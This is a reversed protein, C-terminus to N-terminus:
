GHRFTCKDGRNCNGRAWFTCPKTGILSRNIGKLHDEDGGGGRDGGKGGRRGGRDRDRNRQQEAAPEYDDDYNLQVDGGRGGGGYQKTDYQQTHPPAQPPPQQQQQQQAGSAAAWMALQLAQTPDVAPPAQQQAAAPNGFAAMLAQLPNAAQAQAHPPQAGTASSLAALTTALPDAAPQQQQQAAGQAQLQAYYQAYPNAQQQALMAAQRTAEEARKDNNYGTMWEERRVPDQQWKPPEHAPVPLGALTAVIAELSRSAAQVAPDAYDRRIKSMQPHVPEPDVYNRATASTLAKLVQEDKAQRVQPDDFNLYPQAAQVKNVLMAATSTAAATKRRLLLDLGGRPGCAMFLAARSALNPDSAIEVGAPGMDDAETDHRPSAASPPIDADETYIVMLETMEMEAVVKQEETEVKILGGRSEFTKQRQEEPITTFDVLTPEEWERDSDIQSSRSAKLLRGEAKDDNADRVMNDDREEDEAEEKHFIRVATLEPESKFSVRLHLRRRKEKRLRREREDDTEDIPAEIKDPTVAVPRKAVKPKEIESMLAAFGSSSSARPAEPKVNEAKSAMKGAESSSTKSPNNTSPKSPESKSTGSPKPQASGTQKNESKVTESKPGSLIKTAPRSKGPLVSTTTTNRGKLASLISASPLKAPGPTTTTKQSSAPTDQSTVPQSSSARQETAPKKNVRGEGDEERPRKSSSAGTATSGKATGNTTNPKATPIKSSAEGNAASTSAAKSLSPPKGENSKVLAKIKVVANKVDDDGSGELKPLLKSWKFGEVLSEDLFPLRCAFDLLAKNLPANIDGTNTLNIVIQFTQFMRGPPLNAFVRDDAVRLATAIVRRVRERGKDVAVRLKKSRAEEQASLGTKTKSAKILNTLDKYEPIARLDSVTQVLQEAFDAAVQQILVSSPAWTKPLDLIAESRMELLDLESVSEEPALPPYEFGRKRAEAQFKSPGAKPVKDYSELLDPDLAGVRRLDYELAIRRTRHKIGAKPDTSAIHKLSDMYRGLAEAPILLPRESFLRRRETRAFVPLLREKALKESPKEPADSIIFSNQMGTWKESNSGTPAVPTPIPRLKIDPVGLGLQSPQSPQPSFAAFQPAANPTNVPVHRPVSPQPASQPPQHQRFPQQQISTPQQQRVVPQSQYFQAPALPQQVPARQQQQQQAHPQQLQLHQAQHQQAQVHQTQPRIQQQQKQQQQQAQAYLMQSPIHQQPISIRQQQQHQQHQQQQQQQVPVAQQQAHQLNFFQTPQSQQLGTSHQTVANQQPNQQPYGNNVLPPAQYDDIGHSVAPQQAYPSAVRPAAYGIQPSPSVSHGTDFRQPYGNSVATGPVHHNRQLTANHQISNGGQPFHHYQNYGTQPQHYGQDYADIHTQPQGYATSSQSPIDYGQQGVPVSGGGGFFFDPETQDINMTQGWASQDYPFANSGNGQSHDM